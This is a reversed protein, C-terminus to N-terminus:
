APPIAQEELVKSIASNGSTKTKGEVKDLVNSAISAIDRSREEREDMKNLAKTAVVRTEEDHHHSVPCSPEVEHTIAPQQPVYPVHVTEQPLPKLLRHLGDITNHIRPKLQQIRGLKQQLTAM